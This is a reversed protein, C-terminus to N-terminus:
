SPRITFISVDAFRTSFRLSIFFYIFFILGFSIELRKKKNADAIVHTKQNKLYKNHYRFDSVNSRHSLLNICHASFYLSDVLCTHYVSRAIIRSFRRFETNNNNPPQEPPVCVQIDRHFSALPPSKNIIPLSSFRTSHCGCPNKTCM